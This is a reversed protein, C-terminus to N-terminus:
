WHGRYFVLLLPGSQYASRLSVLRANEDPLEFDPAAALTRSAPADPLALGVYFSFLFFAMWATAVLALGRPWWRRDRLAAYIALGVGLVLPAVVALGTSRLFPVDILAFYPLPAALALVFGIIATWGARATSRAQEM